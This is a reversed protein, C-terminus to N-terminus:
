VSLPLSRVNVHDYSCGDGGGDGSSKMKRFQFETNVVCHTETNLESGNGGWERRGGAESVM